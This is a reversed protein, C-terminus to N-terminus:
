VAYARGAQVAPSLVLLVPFVAAGDVVGDQRTHALAWFALYGVSEYLAM